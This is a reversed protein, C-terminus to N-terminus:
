GTEGYIADIEAAYKTIVQLRRVKQTPTLEDGVAFMTPLIRFRKIAEAHSVARNAEDVAARVAALLESSHRLEAVTAAALIRNAQKWEALAEADLTVLAAIYPRQDGLVVCHEILPHTRLRNELPEPAVNKGAATVIIDKKRGTVTLYGDADLRGLDGTHFWGDETLVARTAEADHWYGDFVMPGRVLIEGDEAVRVECGPLPRGVSGIRVAGPLNLTAGACTETLGYGEFVPLGAGHLFHCLQADLPAAGSVAHTVRGGLAERMKAYVLRDFVQRRVRLWWPPRDSQSHAVAVSEAMAFLGGHGAETASHRAAAVFKEFVRPVGLLLTPRFTRLHTTLNALDSTHATLAGNRVAVLQVVRAFVHALPLFLLISASETLVVDSVGPASAVAHVEACLTAHNLV